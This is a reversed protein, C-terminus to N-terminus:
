DYDFVGRPNSVTFPNNFDNDLVVRDAIRDASVPNNFDTNGFRDSGRELIRFATTTQPLPEQRRAPDNSLRWHRIIEVERGTVTYRLFWSWNQGVQVAVEEGAVQRSPAILQGLIEKVNSGVDFVVLENPEMRRTLNPETVISAIVWAGERFEIVTAPLNEITVMRDGLGDAIRRNVAAVDVAM